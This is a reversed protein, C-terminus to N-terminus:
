KPEKGRKMWRVLWPLNNQWVSYYSTEEAGFGKYFRALGPDNSGEFDLILPNESNERIFWDILYFMAGSEKGKESLGSFLFVKRNGSALFFAGACLGHEPHEVGILEGQHIRQSREVIKKLVGWTQEPLKKVRLGTNRKFIEILSDISIFSTIQLNASGTKQVNRKTNESYSDRLESYTKNLPLELNLNKRIEYDKSPPSNETNLNIDILRFKKPIAECFDDFCDGSPERSFIGLQQCFFAQRLYSFGYKWSRTLPFVAEYDGKVLAEWGPSVIDLYWSCGYVLPTASGQICADWANRDIEKNKLHRIM